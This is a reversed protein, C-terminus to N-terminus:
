NADDTGESEKLRFFSFSFDDRYLDSEMAKRNKKYNEQITARRKSSNVKFKAGISRKEKDILKSIIAAKSPNEEEYAQWKDLSRKRQTAVSSVHQKEAKVNNFISMAERAQYAAGKMAEETAKTEETADQYKHCERRM